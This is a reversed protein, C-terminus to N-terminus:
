ERCFRDGSHPNPVGFGDAGYMKTICMIDFETPANARLCLGDEEAYTSCMISVAGGGADGLGLGHGIRHMMAEKVDSPEFFVGKCGVFVTTRTGVNEAPTNGNMANKCFRSTGAQDYVLRILIDEGFGSKTLKWSCGNANLENRWVAFADNAAKKYEAPVSGQLSIKYLVPNQTDFPFGIPIFPESPEHSAQALSAVFLSSAALGILGALLYNNM